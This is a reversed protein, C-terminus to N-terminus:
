QFEVPGLDRYALAIASASRIAAFYLLQNHCKLIVFMPKIGHAVCCKRDLLMFELAGPKPRIAVFERRCLFCFASAPSEFHSATGLM